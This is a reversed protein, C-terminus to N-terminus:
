KKRAVICFDWYRESLHKHFHPFVCEHIRTFGSQSLMLDLEPLSFFRIPHREITHRITKNKHKEKLTFTIDLLNQEIDLKQRTIRTITKGSGLPVTRTRNKPRDRLVSPLYWGDFIFLGESRIHVSATKLFRLVDDNTTQYGIINFLAIVADFKKKIRFSRADAHRLDMDLGEHEAIKKAIALMEQSLDIGTVQYGDHVLLREYTGTGCGLSLITQTRLTGFTKFIQELFHTEGAYDKAQYMADYYKAYKHFQEM